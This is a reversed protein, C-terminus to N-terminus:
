CRGGLASAGAGAAGDRGHHTDRHVIERYRAAFDAREAPGVVGHWAVRGRTLVVASDCLEVATELDHTSMLLTAGQRHAEALVSCLTSRADIDLGTFPEDLLLVDPQHLLVRALASRQLLGRSLTRVPRNAWLGLDMREVLEAIRRAADPVGFLRAYFLLNENVSLDPYLLSEHALVGIRRRVAAGSRAADTGLIRIVGASPRVLTSILRLLTTKGAGNPGLLATARGQAIELDVGDVALTRGFRKSVGLLELAASMM